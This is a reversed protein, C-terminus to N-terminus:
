LASPLEQSGRPVPAFWSWGLGHQSNEQPPGVKERGSDRHLGSRLMGLVELHQGQLGAPRFDDKIM